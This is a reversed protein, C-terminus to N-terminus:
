AKRATWKTGDFTSVWGKKQAPPEVTTANAPILWETAELPNPVAEGEQILSGDKMSYFWVRKPKRSDHQTVM